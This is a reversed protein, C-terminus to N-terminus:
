YRRAVSVKKEITALFDEREEFRYRVAGVVYDVVRGCPSSQSSVKDCKKLNIGTKYAEEEAIERLREATIFRSRDVFLNVDRTPAVSFSDSIVHRLVSEYLSNGHACSGSLPDRKDVVSYVTRFQCESLKQLVERKWGPDSDYWKKGRSDIMKSAAKLHRARIMVISAMAFCESGDPGLDGSEDIYIVSTM